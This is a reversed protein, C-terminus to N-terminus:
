CSSCWRPSGPRHRPRTCIPRRFSIPRLRVPFRRAPCCAATCCKELLFLLCCGVGMLLEVVLPRVWFGRGQVHAERRLFLWGLVPIRDFWKRQPLGAPATLWPSVANSEIELLAVGLNVLQGLLLGALLALVVALWEPPAGMALYWGIMVLAAVVPILHITISLQYSRKM